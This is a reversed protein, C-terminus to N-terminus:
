RRPRIGYTVPPRNISTGDLRLRPASPPFALWSLTGPTGVTVSATVPLSMVSLTSLLQHPALVKAAEEPTPKPGLLVLGGALAAFGLQKLLRRVGMGAGRAYNISKAHRRTVGLHDATRQHVDTPEKHLELLKRIADARTLGDFPESSLKHPRDESSSRLDHNVKM